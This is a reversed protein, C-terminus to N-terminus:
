FIVSIPVIDARKPLQFGRLIYRGEMQSQRQIGESMIKLREKKRPLRDITGYKTFM